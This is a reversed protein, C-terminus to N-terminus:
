DGRTVRTGSPTRRPAPDPMPAEPLHEIPEPILSRPAPTVDRMPPMPDIEGAEAKRALYEEVTMDAPVVLVGGANVSVNVELPEGERYAHRAKLLFINAVVNGANAALRLNSVLADHETGLGRQYAEEVEPQRARCAKFADVSMRLAKAITTLHCGRASLEEIIKIGRAGVVYHPRGVKGSVKRSPLDDVSM